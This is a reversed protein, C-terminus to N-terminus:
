TLEWASSECQPANGRAAIMADAIVYAYKAPVILTEVTHTEWMPHVMLSFQGSQILGTLAAAAFDDRLLTM